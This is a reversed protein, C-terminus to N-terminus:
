IVSAVADAVSELLEVLAAEEEPTLDADGDPAADGAAEATPADRQGDESDDVTDNAAVPAPDRQLNVNVTIQQGTATTTTETAVTELGKIAKAALRLAEQNAPVPVLSIEFLEWATFDRGGHNNDKYEKPAFGISAARLLGQDWLAQIITMPDNDNAPQRLEPRFRIDGQTVTLDSAKGIVAWPEDYVHGFLLVPNKAYNSVDAGTPIVRDRDRDVAPTSAIMWEGEQKLELTKREMMAGKDSAGTIRRAWDIGSTGGWGLWAVIGAYTWPPNGEERQRSRASEYNGRHRNFASMASVTDIGVTENDALQRARRWGVETMGNVADGHEARWRLVRRANNRASEPLRYQDPM